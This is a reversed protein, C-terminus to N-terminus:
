PHPAAPPHRPHALIETGRLKRSRNSSKDDQCSMVPPDQSPPARRAAVVADRSPRGRCDLARAPDESSASSPIVRPPPPALLRNKKMARLTTWPSAIRDRTRRGARPPPSVRRLKPSNVHCVLRYMDLTRYLPFYSDLDASTSHLRIALTLVSQAPDLSFEERPTAVLHPCPELPLLLSIGM